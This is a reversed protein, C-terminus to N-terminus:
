RNRSSWVMLLANAFCYAALIAGLILVGRVIPLPRGQLALACGMVIVLIFAGTLGFARVVGPGDLGYDIKREM